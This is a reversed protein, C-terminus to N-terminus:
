KRTKEGDGLDDMQASIGQEVERRRAPDAYVEAPLVKGLNAFFVAEDYLYGRRLYPLIKNIVNLSLSAYGQPLRFAALTKADDASLQLKEQLWAQM